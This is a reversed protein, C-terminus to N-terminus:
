WLFHLKVNATLGGKSKCTYFVYVFLRIHYILNVMAKVFASFRKSQNVQESSIDSKSHLHYKEQAGIFAKLINNYLQLRSAIIDGSTYIM